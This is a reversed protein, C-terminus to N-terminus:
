YSDHRKAVPFYASNSGQLRLGAGAVTVKTRPGSGPEPFLNSGDKLVGTAEVAM